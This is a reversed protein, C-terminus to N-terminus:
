KVGHITFRASCHSCKGYVSKNVVKGNRLEVANVTATIHKGCKPCICEIDGPKVYNKIESVKNVSRGKKSVSVDYHKLASRVTAYHMGLVKAIATVSKGKNKKYYKRVQDAKSM